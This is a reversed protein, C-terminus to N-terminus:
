FYLQIYIEFVLTADPEPPTRCQGLLTKGGPAMSTRDKPDHIDARLHELKWPKSPKVSAKSWPRTGSHSPTGSRRKQPAGIKLGSTGLYRNEFPIQSRQGSFRPVGFFVLDLWSPDLGGNAAREVSSCLEVNKSTEPKKLNNTSRKPNRQRDGWGWGGEGM